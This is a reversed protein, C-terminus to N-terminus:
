RDNEGEHVCIDAFEAALAFAAAPFAAIPCIGYFLGISIILKKM